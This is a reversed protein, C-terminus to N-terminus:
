HSAYARRRSAPPPMDDTDKGSRLHDVYDAWWAMMLVREDWYTGRSYARRIENTESHSLQKEIADPNWYGTENLLTSASSRFGHSTVEDKGYGLRRLAANLTNESFPRECSRESPFVLRGDGTLRRLGEIIAIAQHSLPIRHERRMKMRTDPIIWIAKTTNIEAWEAGRLEGPRPFLLTLLQLAAKTTPLGEYGDIVRLLDGFPKPKTIAPLPTVTPTILAGQLAFTPDTEARATAVAYRFVSGITSRVRRATEYHGRAEIKRLVKLIDIARIETIPTDGFSAFAFDLLWRKKTMTIKARGERDLKAVLEDAVVKFTDAVIEAERKKAKKDESPDVGKILLLKANERARRADALSVRPYAGVALLKQKGDYRYSIRWLRSGNPKVWLQLGDETLKKIKEAPKANRCAMDTLLM